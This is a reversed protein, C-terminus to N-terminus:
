QVRNSPPIQLSSVKYVMTRLKSFNYLGNKLRKTNGDNFFTLDRMFVGTSHHVYVTIAQEVISDPTHVAHRTIYSYESVVYMDYVYTNHKVHRYLALSSPTTYIRVYLPINCAQMCTAAADYMHM